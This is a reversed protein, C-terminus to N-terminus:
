EKSERRGELNVNLRTEFFRGAREQRWTKQRTHNLNFVEVVSVVYPTYVCSPYNRDAGLM